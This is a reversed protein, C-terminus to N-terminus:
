PEGESPDLRAAANAGVCARLKMRKAEFARALTAHSEESFDYFDGPYTAQHAAHVFRLVSEADPPSSVARAVVEPLTSPDDVDSTVGYGRYFVKGLVVVPKRYLLSEYGVTSTLVICALAKSIMEHSNIAPHVLRVNPLAAIRRMTGVSFEDFAAPHPKVFLKVGTPLTRRALYEVIAAQDQYPAARVTVATDNPVHLPFFVYPEATPQSFFPWLMTRRAMRHLRHTIQFAPSWDIQERTFLLGANELTWRV